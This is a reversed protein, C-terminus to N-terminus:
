GPCDAADPAELARTVIGAHLAAHGAYERAEADSGAALALTAWGVVRQAHSPLEPFRNNAPEWVRVRTWLEAWHERPREWSGGLVDREVCTGAIPSAIGPSGDEGPLLGVPVREVEGDADGDGAGRVGPGTVLNRADEAAARAAPLSEAGGWREVAAEIEAARELAEARAGTAAGAASSADDGGCGAAAMM